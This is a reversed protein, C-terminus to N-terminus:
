IYHELKDNLDAVEKELSCIRSWLRYLVILLVGIMVYQIYQMSNNGKEEEKVAPKVDIEDVKQGLSEKVVNRALPLWIDKTVENTEKTGASEIKGRFMTSKVFEMGSSSQMAVKQDGIVKWRFHGVFCDSLPVGSTTIETEFIFETNSVFYITQNEMCKCTKPMMLVREKVPHTYDVTRTSSYNWADGPINQYFNPPPPTWQTINIDTDGRLGLFKLTFNKSNDSFLLEFIKQASVEFELSEIIIHKYLSNPKMQSSNINSKGDVKRMLKGLELRAPRNEIKFECKFETIEKYKPKNMKLLNEITAKVQERSFFSAFIFENTDTVISLANDFVLGHVKKDIKKIEKLPIAILTERGFITTSNFYSHFCIHTTTIYMRGQLLIKQSFACSYSEVFMSGIPLQFKSFIDNDDAKSDGEKIDEETELHPAPTQIDMARDTPPQIEYLVVDKFDDEINLNEFVKTGKDIAEHLFDILQSDLKYLNSLIAKLSQLQSAEQNSNEALSSLVQHETNQISTQIRERIEQIKKQAKDDARKIKEFEKLGEEQVISHDRITKQVISQLSKCLNGQFIVLNQIPEGTARNIEKCNNLHVKSLELIMTNFSLWLSKSEKKNAIIDSLTLGRGIKELTKGFIEDSSCIEYLYTRFAKLAKARDDCSMLRSELKMTLNEIPNTSKLENDKSQVMLDLTINALEASQDIRADSQEKKLVLINKIMCIISEILGRLVQMSEKELEVIQSNSLALIKELSEHKQDTMNIHEGLCGQAELLEKKSSKAKEKYRQIIGLQYNTNPDNKVKKYASITSEREKLAKDYKAKIKGYISRAQSLDRMAQQAEDVMKKRFQSADESIKNVRQIIMSNLSTSSKIYINGILDSYNGFAKICEALNMNNKTTLKSLQFILNKGSKSISKGYQDFSQIIEILFSGMNRMAKRFNDLFTSWIELYRQQDPFEPRSGAFLLDNLVNM